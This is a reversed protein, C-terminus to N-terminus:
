ILRNPLAEIAIKQYPQALVDRHVNGADDEFILGKADSGRFIYTEVTGDLREIWIRAGVQITVTPKKVSVRSTAM